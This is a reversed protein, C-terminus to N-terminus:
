GLYMFTSLLFTMFRQVSKDAISAAAPQAPFLGSSATVGACSGAGMAAPGPVMEGLRDFVGRGSLIAAAEVQLDRGGGMEWSEAGSPPAGSGVCGYEPKKGTCPMAGLGPNLSPSGISISISPGAAREGTSGRESF